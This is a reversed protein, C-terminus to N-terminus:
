KIEEVIQKFIKGREEFNKFMDFSSCGPSFLIVDGHQSSNFASIVADELSQKIEIETENEFLSKFMLATEGIAILKKVKNRILDKLPSFDIGKDKGGAILIVKEFSLLAKELSDINTSKSDNIFKVGGIEKVFELRHELGKFDKIAELFESVSFGLEKVVLISAMINQINHYGSLPLFNANIQMKEINVFGEEYFIDAKEKMSFYLFNNGKLNKLNRDDKNLIIKGTTHDILNLKARKYEDFDKYRNLHDPTINLIVSIECKFNKLDEIQYSSLEIVSISDSDTESAFESVPIGYNGGIFVKGKKWLKKLGHYILATTTTKGNTGTICIVKGKLFRGALEVEGIVEIRKEKYFKVTPHSQPIGPSKVVFDPNEPLKGKEKDDYYTVNYGLKELLKGASKGSKGKGLVVVM